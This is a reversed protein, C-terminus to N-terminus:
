GDKFQNKLVVYVFVRLANEIRFLANLAEYYHPLLWEGPINLGRTDDTEISKWEM